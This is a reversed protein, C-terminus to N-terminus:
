ASTGPWPPRHSSAALTYPYVPVSHALLSPAPHPGAKRKAAWAPHAAAAEAPNYQSSTPNQAKTKDASKKPAEEKDFKTQVGALNKVISGVVLPKCEDM